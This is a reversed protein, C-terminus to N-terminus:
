TTFKEVLESNDSSTLHNRALNIQRQSHSQYLGALSDNCRDAAALSAAHGLVSWSSHLM